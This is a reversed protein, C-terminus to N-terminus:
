DCINLWERITSRLDNQTERIVLLNVNPRKAADESLQVSTFHEKRIFWHWRNKSAYNSYNAWNVGLHKCQSLLSLLVECFLIVKEVLVLLCILQLIQYWLFGGQPAVQSAGVGLKNIKQRAKQLNVGSLSWCGTFCQPMSPKWVCITSSGILVIRWKSPYKQLEEAWSVVGKEKRKCSSKTRTNEKGPLGHGTKRPSYM